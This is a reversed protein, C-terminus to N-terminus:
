CIYSKATQQKFWLCDMFYANQNFAITWPSWKGARGIVRLEYLQFLAPLAKQHRIGSSKRPSAWCVFEKRRLLKNLRKIQQNAPNMGISLGQIKTVDEESFTCPDVDDNAVEFWVQRSNELFGTIEFYGYVGLLDEINATVRKSRKEFIEADDNWVDRCHELEQMFEEQSFERFNTRRLIFFLDYTKFPFGKGSRDLLAAEFGNGRFSQLPKFLKEKCLRYYCGAVNKLSKEYLTTMVRELKNKVIPYSDALHQQQIFKVGAYAEVPGYKKFYGQFENPNRYAEQIHQYLDNREVAQGSTFLPDLHNYVYPPVIAIAHNPISTSKVHRAIRGLRQIFQSGTRAEFILLDKEYDGKFDIGVEITSTGVTMQSILAQQRAEASALGHIEGVTQEPYRARLSQTVRLTDAVSDLIFVSKADPFAALFEEVLGFHQQLTEFGKWSNLDGPILSVTLSQAVCVSGETEADVPQSAVYETRIHLKELLERFRPSPTASSFVFAKGRTQQLERLAAITFAVNSVQKINYLHFEDFIIVPFSATLSFLMEAIGPFGNYLGFFLMYFIDPNTLILRRWHLLVRLVDYHSNRGLAVEWEDLTRSDIRLLPHTQSEPFEPRLAREQDAILENTPYLGFAPLESHLISAAYGALTKGGGTVATNFICLFEKQRQSEMILDYMQQQHQYPQKGPLWNASELRAYHIPQIELTLPM